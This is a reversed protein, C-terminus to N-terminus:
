VSMLSNTSFPDFSVHKTKNICHKKMISWAWLLECYVDKHPPHRHQSLILELKELCNENEKLSTVVCHSHGQNLWKSIFLTSTLVCLHKQVVSSNNGPHSLCSIKKYKICLYPSVFGQTSIMDSFHNASQNSLVNNLSHTSFVPM